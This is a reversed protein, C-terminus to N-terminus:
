NTAIVCIKNIKMGEHRFKIDQRTKKKSELITKDEIRYNKKKGFVIRIM